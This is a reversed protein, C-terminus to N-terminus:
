ANAFSKKKLIFILGLLSPLGLNVLWLLLSSVVIVADDDIILGLILLGATERIILKGFLISPTLTSVLYLTLIGSYLTFSAEVGFSMLMFLFQFSFVIFRISSLSILPLYLKKAHSQFRFLINQKRYLNKFRGLEVFPVAFYFLLSLTIVSILLLKISDEFFSLRFGFMYLFGITGFIITVLFQAFNSYLTGLIIQGRIKGKFFIMRGIFNGVRNPTIIGTSVGSFLSHTLERISYKIGIVKLIRQWKLLELGWNVPLLFLVLFFYFPEKLDLSNFQKFDIQSIQQVFFYLVGIFLVM